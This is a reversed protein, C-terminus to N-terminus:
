FMGNRLYYWLAEHHVVYKEKDYLNPILKKVGDVVVSEVALPYGNHLDHLEKPYELDVKLTCSRIKAHDEMM